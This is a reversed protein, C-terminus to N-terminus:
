ASPDDHPQTMRADEVLDHVSNDMNHSNSREETDPTIPQM